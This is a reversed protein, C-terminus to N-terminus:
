KRPKSTFCILGCKEKSAHPMPFAPFAWLLSRVRGGPRNRCGSGGCTGCQEECCIDRDDDAAQVGALGNSCQGEPCSLHASRTKPTNLSRSQNCFCLNPVFSVIVRRTPHLIGHQPQFIRSPPSVLTQAIYKETLEDSYNLTNGQAHEEHSCQSM